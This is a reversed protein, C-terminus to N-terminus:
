FRFIDLVLWYNCFFQYNFIRNSNKTKLLYRLWVSVLPTHANGAFDKKLKFNHNNLFHENTVLQGLLCQKAM